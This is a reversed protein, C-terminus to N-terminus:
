RTSPPSPSPTASRATPPPAGARPWSARRSASACLDWVILFYGALELKEILALEKEIQGQAKATLPRFRARAGNWTLHRLYSDPTEDPPLPYDPFRYGLDDLTFELREALDAAHELARPLDSFLAAMERPSKLHRERERALRSGAADLPTGHRIATLVDQLPKGDRRAYRAGNTAVVPLRASRALDLLARNPHEEHRLRHRQLEV